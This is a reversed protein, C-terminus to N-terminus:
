RLINVHGKLQIYEGRANKYEILYVYVDDTAADGTWGEKDSHTEFVKDGWRNFVMVKYDTKEVYQAAPLWTSNLGKPAFANPVFITVEVYADAPNSKAQDKFGHINGSGEVAEVYYSFKGQESIYNEIDDTYTKTGAPVNIIPMPDFAGNVARYINFSEVGANWTTYDDWSLTNYFINENDNSVHLVISKSSDSWVGPNGCDDTAEIKYYYNKENTKVNADTYTQPMLTSSNVFTLKSYTIGDESKYVNCGKFPNTTDVTFTLEIQKSATNVSVSNIYVYAPGPLGTATFCSENSSASISNDSNWVRIIYCYTAGPILGTHSFSTSTSSGIVSYSSSNVSCLVDYKLVGKPLNSYPTWSLVATRSCLDYVPATLFITNHTLSPIAYNGCSDVASICYGQSSTGASAGGATYTTNGPGCITDVPVLAGGIKKYIVYCTVDLYPSPEWGLVVDGNSNVSASDVVVIPPPQINRCTDGKVNSVSTCGYSDSIEVKYNYFVKCRYITDKYNLKNGTYIVSWTNAPYERSVTYTPSSTPLLPTKVANWNLNSIGNISGGTVNLFISRLTDSSTSTSTGASSITKVFYYQSQSNTGTPSQVYTSQNYVNVTGALTYTVGTPSTWIQYETFLGGPDPPIIWSLTTSNSNVSICRLIPAAVQANIKSFFFVYFFILIYFHRKKM